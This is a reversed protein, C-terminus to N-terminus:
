RRFSPGSDVSLCLPRGQLSTTLSYLSSCPRSLLTPLSPRSNLSFSRRLNRTSSPIWLLAEFLLWGFTPVLSSRFRVQSWGVDTGLVKLSCYGLRGLYFLIRFVIGFKFTLRQDNLTEIFLFKSLVFIFSLGNPKVDFWLPAKTLDSVFRVTRSSVGERSKSCKIFKLSDTSTETSLESPSKRFWSRPIKPSRWFLKLVRFCPPPQNLSRKDLPKPCSENVRVYVLSM